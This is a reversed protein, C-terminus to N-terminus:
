EGVNVELAKQALEDGVYYGLSLLRKPVTRLSICKEDKRFKFTSLTVLQKYDGSEFPETDMVITIGSNEDDLYIGECYGYEGYYLSFGLKTAMSKFTAAYVQKGKCVSLEQAEELDEELEGRCLTLQAIPQQVEYDELQTQWAKVQEELLDAPHLLAITSGEELGYEEEEVDNFTGDEMYRFIGRLKGEQDREEWILGTAFTMMLPNEVFLSKWKNLSWCRGTFIAKTIRLVQEEVVRPLQKKIAKLEEKAANAVEEVDGYKESAKPMSRIAKETEDFLDISLDQNLIAKIKRQGYDFYRVRQSDFGFDPVIEDELADRSMQWAKCLMDMAEVAAQRVKKNKHKKSLNDTWSLALKSGNMCLCQVGFAALAPKSTISWEDIQKKLATLQTPTALLSYPFMINKYANSAGEAVWHMYLQQLLNQLDYPNVMSSIKSCTKIVYFDKLMIYEAIFYKMLGESVYNESNKERVQKYDVVDMYPANKEHAKTYEKAIFDELAQITEIDQLKKEVKENEWQRLLRCAADIAVKGKGRSIAEVEERITHERSLLLDEAALVIKKNKNKLFTVLMKDNFGSDKRFLLKLFYITMEAEYSIEEMLVELDEQHRLLFDYLLSQDIMGEQKNYSSGTCYQCLVVEILTELRFGKNYLDDLVTKSELQSYYLYKEGFYVLMLSYDHLHSLLLKVLNNAVVSYEMLGIAALGWKYFGDGKRMFRDEYKSFVKSDFEVKSLDALLVEVGPEFVMEKEAVKFIASVQTMLVGDAAALYNSAQDKSLLQHALMIALLNIGYIENEKLQKELIAIAETEDEKVLAKIEECSEQISSIGSLNLSECYYRLYLEKPVELQDWLAIRQSGLRYRQYNRFFRMDLLFMTLRAMEKLSDESEVLCECLYFLVDKPRTLKIPIPNKLISEIEKYSGCEKYAGGVKHAGFTMTMLSLMWKQFTIRYEGKPNHRVENVMFILTALQEGENAMPQQNLFYTVCKPYYKKIDSLWESFESDNAHYTSYGFQEKLRNMCDQNIFAEKVGAEKLIRCSSPYQEDLLMLVDPARESLIYILRHIIAQVEEDYPQTSSFCLRSIQWYYRVEIKKICIAEEDVAGILYDYFSNIPWEEVEVAKMIMSLVEEKNMKRM